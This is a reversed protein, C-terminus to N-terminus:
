NSVYLGFERLHFLMSNALGSAPLLELTIPLINSNIRPNLEFNSLGTAGNTRCLAPVFRGSGNMM